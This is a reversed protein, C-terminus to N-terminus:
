VIDQWTTGAAEPSRSNKSVSELQPTSLASHLDQRSDVDRRVTLILHVDSEKKYRM